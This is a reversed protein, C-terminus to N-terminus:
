IVLRTPRAGRSQVYVTGDWGPSMITTVHEGCDRCDAGVRAHGETTTGGRRYKDLNSHKCGLLKVEAMTRCEELEQLEMVACIREGIIREDHRSRAKSLARELYERAAILM